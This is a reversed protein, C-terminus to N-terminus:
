KSLDKKIKELEEPSKNYIERILDRQEDSECDIKIDNSVKFGGCEEVRRYACVLSLIDYFNDDFNMLQELAFAIDFTSGQVGCLPPKGPIMQYTIQVKKETM